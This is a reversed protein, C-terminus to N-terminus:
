RRRSILDALLERKEADVGFLEVGMGPRADKLGGFPTVWRVRGQVKLKRGGPRPFAIEVADGVELPSATEIFVGTLSANAVRQRELGFFGRVEVTESLPIRATRRPAVPEEDELSTLDVDIGDIFEVQEPEARGAAILAEKSVEGLLGKAPAGARQGSSIKSLFETVSPAGKKRKGAHAAKKDSPKRGKGGM